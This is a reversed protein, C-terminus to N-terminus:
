PRAPTGPTATADSGTAGPEPTGPGPTGPLLIPLLDLPTAASAITGAAESPAGYGWEAFVTPVGHVAAGEVDHLRDGVLVPRSVDAGAGALRSLAEAVVDAKASRVEDDSAGTIFDLYQVLGYHELIYTAPTEPKSTATSLPIGAEHLTRLVVDMGPFMTSDLAGHALYHERYVALTRDAMAQDMGMATRFTDLIPPGVFSLLTERPPVPVGVQRFTYTLSETIGPASDSITGDLDFLIVSFPSTSM